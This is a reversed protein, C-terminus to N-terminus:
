RRVWRQRATRTPPALASATFLHWELMRLFVVMLSCMMLFLLLLLSSLRRMRTSPSPRCRRFVLYILLLTVLFSALVMRRFINVLPKGLHHCRPGLLLRGPIVVLNIGHTKKGIWTNVLVGAGLTIMEMTRNTALPMDMMVLLGLFLCRATLGSAYRRDDM